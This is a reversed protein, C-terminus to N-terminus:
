MSLLARFSSTSSSLNQEPCRLGWTLTSLTGQDLEEVPKRAGSFFGIETGVVRLSQLVTEYMSPRGCVTPLEKSYVHVLCTPGTGNDSACAILCDM